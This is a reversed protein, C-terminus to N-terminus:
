FLMISYYYYFVCFHRLHFLCTMCTYLYMYYTTRTYKITLQDVTVTSRLMTSDTALPLPMPHILSPPLPLYQVLMLLLPPLLPPPPLPLPQPLQLPLPSPASTTYHLELINNFLRSRVDRHSSRPRTGKEPVLGIDEWYPDFLTCCLEIFSKNSHSQVFKHLAFRIEIPLRM